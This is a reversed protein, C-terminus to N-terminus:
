KTTGNDKVEVIEKVVKMVHVCTGHKEDVVERNAFHWCTCCFRDTRTDYDVINLNNKFNFYYKYRSEAINGLELNVIRKQQYKSLM